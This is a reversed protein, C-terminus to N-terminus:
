SERAYKYEEILTADKASEQGEESNLILDFVPVGCGKWLRARRASSVFVSYTSLERM